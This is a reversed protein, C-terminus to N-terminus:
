STTQTVTESKAKIVCSIRPPKSLMMLRIKLSKKEFLFGAMVKSSGLMFYANRSNSLCTILTSM